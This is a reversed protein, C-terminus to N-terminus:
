DQDPPENLGEDLYDPFFDQMNLELDTLVYRQPKEGRLEVKFKARYQNRRHLRADEVIQEFIAQDYSMTVHVRRNEALVHVERAHWDSGTVRVLMEGSKEAEEVKPADAISRPLTIPEAWEVCRITAGEPFNRPGTASIRLERALGQVIEADEGDGTAPVDTGDGSGIARAFEQAKLQFKPTAIVDRCHGPVRLYWRRAIMAPKKHFVLESGLKVEDGQVAALLCVTTRFQRCAQKLASSAIQDFDARLFIASEEDLIECNVGADTGVVIEVCEGAAAPPHWPLRDQQGQQNRREAGNRYRRSKKPM